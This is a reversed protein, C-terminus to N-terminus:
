AFYTGLDMKYNGQLGLLGRDNWETHGLSGTAGLGHGGDM